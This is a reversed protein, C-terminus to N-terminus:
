GRGKKREAEGTRWGFGLGTFRQGGGEGGHARRRQRVSARRGEEGLWADSVPERMRTDAKRWAEAEWPPRARPHCRVPSRSLACRGGGDTKQEPVVFRRGPASLRGWPGGGRWCRWTLRRRNPLCSERWPPARERWWQHWRCRLEVHAVRSLWSCRSPPIDRRIEPGVRRRVEGVDGSRCRRWWITPERAALSRRHLGARGRSRGGPLGGSSCPSKCHWGRKSGCRHCRSRSRLLMPGRRRRSSWPRHQGSSSQSARLESAASDSPGEEGDKPGGLLHRPTSEVPNLLTERGSGMPM